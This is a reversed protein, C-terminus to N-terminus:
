VEGGFNSHIQTLQIPHWQDTEGCEQEDTAKADNWQRKDNEGFNQRCLYACFISEIEIRLLRNSANQKKTQEYTRRTPCVSHMSDFLINANMESFVNGSSMFQTPNYPTAHIQEATHKYPISKLMKMKFSVLPFFRLVVSSSFQVSIEVGGDM